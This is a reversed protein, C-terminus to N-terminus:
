NKFVISPQTGNGITYTISFTGLNDSGSIVTGAETVRLLVKGNQTATFVQPVSYGKDVGKMSSSPDGFIYSSAGQYKACVAIDATDRGDGEYFDSWYVQYTQTNTVPFSYWVIEGVSLLEDELWQGHANTGANTVTVTLDIPNAESGIPDAVGGGPPSEPTSQIKIAYTGTGTTATWPQVRILATGGSTVYFSRPSYRYDGSPQDVGLVVTGLLYESGVKVAVNVDGTKISSNERDEVYVYYTTGSSVSLSYWNYDTVNDFNGDKWAGSTLAIPRGETGERAKVSVELDCGAFVFLALLFAPLAKFILKM